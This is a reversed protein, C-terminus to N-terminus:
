SPFILRGAAALLPEPQGALDSPEPRRNNRGLGFLIRLEELSLRAPGAAASNGDGLAAEAIAKKDNQLFISPTLKPRFCFFEGRIYSTCRSPNPSVQMNIIREEVTPEGDDLRTVLKM